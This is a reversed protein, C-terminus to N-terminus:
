IHQSLHKKVKELHGGVKWATQEQTEIKMTCDKMEKTMYIQVTLTIRIIERGGIKMEKQNM